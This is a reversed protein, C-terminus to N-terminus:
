FYYDLYYLLIVYNQDYQFTLDINTIIDGNCVITPHPLENIIMPQNGLESNGIISLRHFDFFINEDVFVSKSNDPGRYKIKKSSEELNKTSNNPGKYYFIGCM